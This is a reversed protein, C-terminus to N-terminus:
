VCILFASGYWGVDDLSNFKTTITPIATSLISSDLGVLLVALCLGLVVLGLPLGTLYKALQETNEEFDSEIIMEELDVSYEDLGTTGVATTSTKTLTM